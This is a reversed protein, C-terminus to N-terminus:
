FLLVLVSFILGLDILINYFATKEARQHKWSMLEWERNYITFPSIFSDIKPAKGLFDVFLLKQGFTVIRGLDM